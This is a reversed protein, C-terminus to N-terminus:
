SCGCVRRQFRREEVIITPMESIRLLHSAFSEASMDSIDLIALGASPTWL